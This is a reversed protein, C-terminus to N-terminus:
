KSSFDYGNHICEDDYIQTHKGDPEHQPGDCQEHFLVACFLGPKTHYYHAQHAVVLVCMGGWM